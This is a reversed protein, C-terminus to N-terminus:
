EGDNALRRLEECEKYAKDTLEKALLALNVFVTAQTPSYETKSLSRATSMARLLQKMAYRAQETAKEANLLNDFKLDDVEEPKM